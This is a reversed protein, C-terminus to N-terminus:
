SQEQVDEVDEIYVQHPDRNHNKPYKGKQEKAFKKLEEYEKSVQEPTKTDGFKVPNGITGQQFYNNQRLEKM